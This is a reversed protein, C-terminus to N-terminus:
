KLMWKYVVETTAVRAKLIHERESFLFMLNSM